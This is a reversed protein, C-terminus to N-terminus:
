DEYRLNAGFDPVKGSRIEQEWRDLRDDGLQWFSRCNELYQLVVDREGIELMEKALTMNPGFNNLQPSGPTKGAELLFHRADAVRGEALAIRGLVVNTAHFANGYDWNRDVRPLLTLLETAYRRAQDNKGAAISQTTAEKLAHLRDFDTTANDLDSVARALRREPLQELIVWGILGAWFLSYSQNLLLARKAGPEGRRRARASFIIGIVWIIGGLVMYSGFAPLLLWRLDFDQSVSIRYRIAFFFAILLLLLAVNASAAIRAIRVSQIGV